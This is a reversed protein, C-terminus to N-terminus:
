NQKAKKSLNNKVKEKISTQKADNFEGYLNECESSTENDVCSKLSNKIKDAQKLVGYQDDKDDDDENHQNCRHELTKIMDSIVKCQHKYKKLSDINTQNCTSPVTDLNETIDNLIADQVKKVCSDQNNQLSTKITTIFKDCRQLEADINTIANKNNERSALIEEQIKEKIKDKMSSYYAKIKEMNSEYLEKANAPNAIKINMPAVQLKPFDDFFENDANGKSSQDFSYINPKSDYGAYNALSPINLTLNATESQLNMANTLDKFMAEKFGKTELNIKEASATMQATTTDILQNLRNSCQQINESCISAQNFCFHTSTTNNSKSPLVSSCGEFNTAKGRCDLLENRMRKMIDSRLNNDHNELEKIAPTIIKKVVFDFSKKNLAMSKQCSQAYGQMLQALTSRIAPNAPNRFTYVNNVSVSVNASLKGLKEELSRGDSNDHIISMSREVFDKCSKNCTFNKMRNDKPAILTYLKKKLSEQNSAGFEKNICELKKQNQWSQFLDKKNNADGGNMLTNMFSQDESGSLYEKFTNIIGQRKSRMDTLSTDITNKFSPNQLISFQSLDTTQTKLTENITSNAKTLDEMSTNRLNKELQNLTTTLDKEILASNKLFTTSDSTRDEQSTKIGMLGGDGAKIYSKSIGTHDFMAECGPQSLLNNIPNFKNNKGTYLLNYDDTLKEKEEQIRKMFAAHELKWKTISDNLSKDIKGFDADITSIKQKLCAEGNNKLYEQRISVLSNLAKENKSSINDKETKDKFTEQTVCIGLNSPIAPQMRCEQFIPHKNGGQTAMTNLANVIGGTGQGSALADILPKTTQFINSTKNVIDTVKETTSKKTPAPNPQSPQTQSFAMRGYLWVVVIILFIHLLTRQSM